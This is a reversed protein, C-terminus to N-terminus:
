IRGHTVYVAALGHRNETEHGIHGLLGSPASQKQRRKLMHTERVYERVVNEISKSTRCNNRSALAEDNDTRGHHKARTVGTTQVDRLHALNQADKLSSVRRAAM